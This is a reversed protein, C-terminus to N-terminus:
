SSRTKKKGLIGQPRFAFVSLALFLVVYDQYGSGLYRSVFIKIAELLIGGCFAGLPSAVGGLFLAVFGNFTFYGGGLARFGALPCILAGAIGVTAGAILFSLARSRNVPFGLLEAARRNDGIARLMRGSRTRNLWLQVALFILITVCIIVLYHAPITLNWITFRTQPFFSPGRVPFDGFVLRAIQEWIWLLAATALVPAVATPSPNLRITPRIVLGENGFAILASTLCGAILAVVPGLQLTEAVFAGALGGIIVYQGMALDMIGGTSRYVLHFGLAVLALACGNVLIPLILGFM